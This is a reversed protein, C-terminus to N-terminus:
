AEGGLLGLIANNILTETQPKNYYNSLDTEPITIDVAKSSVPLAVGNVKVTEIINAQANSPAHATQSHSYATDYNSKLTNTLNNDTLTKGEVQKVYVSDHNHNTEAKGSLLNVLTTGEAYGDLLAVVEHLKNIVNDADSEGDITEIIEEIANLRSKLDTDDYPVPLDEETIFESDNELESIKTPITPKNKIYDDKTNDTQNWDSQVNKYDVEDWHVGLTSVPNNGSNLNTLSFYVKENYAVLDFKSYSVNTEWSVPAKDHLMFTPYDTWTSGNNSVRSFILVNSGGAVRMWWQEINNGGNNVHILYGLDGVKFYYLGTELCEALGEEPADFEGLNIIAQPQVTPLDEETIFGSDNTLDSTKSPINPKNTLDNYSGSFLGKGEEKQVYTEDHDHNVDAYQSLLEALTTGEAYGNLLNVIEHLKDIVDNADEEGDITGIINEISELRSRIASFLESHAEEDTNHSNPLKGDLASELALIDAKVLNLAHADTNAEHLGLDEAVDEIDEKIDEHASESTNHESIEATVETKTPIDNTVNITIDNGNEVVEIHSGQKITRINWNTNNDPDVKVVEAGSGVNTMTIDIVGAYGNVSLVNFFEPVVTPDLEIATGEICFTIKSCNFVQTLGNMSALAQVTIELTGPINTFWNSIDVYFKKPQGPIPYTVILGETNTTGDEKKVNIGATLIDGPVDTLDIKLRTVFNDTQRIVGKYVTDPVGLNNYKVKVEKLLIM